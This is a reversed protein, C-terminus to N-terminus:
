PTSPGLSNTKMGLVNMAYWCLARALALADNIDWGKNFFRRAIEVEGETMFTGDYIIKCDYDERYERLLSEVESREDETPKFEVLAIGKEGDGCTTKFWYAKVWKTFMEADYIQEVTCTRSFDQKHCFNHHIEANADTDSPVLVYGGDISVLAFYKYTM